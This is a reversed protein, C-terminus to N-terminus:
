KKELSYSFHQLPSSLELQQIQRYRPQVHGSIAMRLQFDPKLNPSSKSIICHNTVETSYYM